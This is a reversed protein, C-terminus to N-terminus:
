ARGGTRAGSIRYLALRSSEFIGPARPVGEPRWLEPLM